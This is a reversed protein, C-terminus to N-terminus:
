EALYEALHRLIQRLLDSKPNCLLVDRYEHLDSKQLMLYEVAYAEVHILGGLLRRDFRIGRHGSFRLINSLVISKM